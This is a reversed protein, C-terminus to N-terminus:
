NKQGGVITKNEPAPRLTHQGNAASPKSLDEIAKRVQPAKLQTGIQMGSGGPTVDVVSNRLSKDPTTPKKIFSEASPKNPDPLASPHIGVKLNGNEYYM